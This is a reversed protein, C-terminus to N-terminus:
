PPSEQTPTNAALFATYYAAKKSGPQAQLGRVCAPIDFADAWARGAEPTTLGAERCDYWAAWRIRTRLERRVWADGAPWTMGGLRDDIRGAIADGVNAEWDKKAQREEAKRRTAERAPATAPDMLDAIAELADAIRQLCGLNLQEVTPHPGERPYWASRSAQRFDPPNTM